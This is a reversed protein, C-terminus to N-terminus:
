QITFEKAMGHELHLKGDKADPVFCLLIHNGPTLQVRVYATGGPAMPALGGLAKGPFPGTYTAAWAGVDAMTKGSDLRAIFFEHSQQAGNTVKIVHEGATLAPTLDFGYDVLTMAVDSTPPAVATAPGPVVTLERVMGKAIHPIRDPIDVVCFLAYTGAALDHTVVTTDGMAPPNPGGIETLWAPFPKTPDLAKAAEMFDAFTKGDGIKVVMAHHIGSTAVLHFATMGSPITDPAALAFDSATITVVNPVAAVAPDAAPTEAGSCAILALIPLSTIARM